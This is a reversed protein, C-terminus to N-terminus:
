AAQQGLAERAARVLDSFLQDRQLALAALQKRDLEIGAKRLGNIFRSYSLGHERVLANIRAIWLARFNRKKQKRDRYAYSLGKELTSRAQRYLKRGGVFGSALKLQRKHRRRTKPGGKARPM